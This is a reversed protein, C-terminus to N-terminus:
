EKFMLERFVPELSKAIWAEGPRRVANLTHDGNVYLLDFTGSLKDRNDRFWADLASHDTESLSRWLIVCKQGEADTGTVVLVGDIWRRSEMRLGILWNFTESLDVKVDRRVGDRVVSLSYALPNTFEKGLLCASGSTEVGLAYRLRYDETLSVNEALM